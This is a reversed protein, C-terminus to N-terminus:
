EAPYQFYLHHRFSYVRQTFIGGKKLQLPTHRLFQIPHRRRRSSLGNNSIGRFCKEVIPSRRANTGHASRALQHKVIAVSNILRFIFSENLQNPPQHYLPPEVVVFSPSELYQGEPYRIYIACRHHDRPHIRKKSQNTSKTTMIPRSAFRSITKHIWGFGWLSSLVLSQFIYHFLPFSIYSTNTKRGNTREQSTNHTTPIYTWPLRSLSDLGLNRLHARCYVRNRFLNQVFRSHYLGPSPPPQYGFSFREQKSAILIQSPESETPIDL